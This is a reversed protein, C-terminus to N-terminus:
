CCDVYSVLLEICFRYKGSKDLLIDVSKQEQEDPIKKHLLNFAATQIDRSDSSVLGFLEETAPIQKAPIKGVERCLMADVIELPQSHIQRDLRLLDILGEAKTSNFDRLAEELDDNPESIGELIKVLKLSAHIFPLADDLTFEGARRWMTTCFQLSSEWYSGYVDTMCPLLVNLARFIEACLSPSLENAGDLWSTLQRVAFVIRNNAVPLEGKEYIQATNTLLALTTHTREGDPTVAAADSVLRNCFNSLSKSSQGADGFGSVLGAALLATDPKTRLHDLKLFTEEAGNPIGHAETLGQLIEGLVRASYSARTSLERSEKMAFDIIGRVVSSPTLEDGTSIQWDSAKAIYGNLLMRSESIFEEAESGSENLALDLWLKNRSMTTIQDTALQVALCQLFLLEVLFRKPVGLDGLGGKLLENTYIAMRAPVCRGNRDRLLSALKGASHAVSPLVVAGAINATISLSPDIREDLLSGICGM